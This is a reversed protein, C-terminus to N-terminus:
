SVHGEAIREDRVREIFADIDEISPQPLGSAAVQRRASSLIAEFRQAPSETEELDLVILQRVRESMGQSREACRRSFEAKVAAPLVVRLVQSEATSETM